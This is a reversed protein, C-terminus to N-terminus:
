TEQPAGCPAPSVWAFLGTWSALEPLQPGGDGEPMGAASDMLSPAQLWPKRWVKLKWGHTGGPLSGGASNWLLQVDSYIWM